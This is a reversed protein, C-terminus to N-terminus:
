GANQTKEQLLLRAARAFVTPLGVACQPRNVWDGGLAQRRAAAEEAGLPLHFVELQLRFHTFVHTISGLRELRDRSAQMAEALASAHGDAHETWTTSPFGPMGGLLGKRPRTVRLVGSSSTVIAAAGFRQPKGPKLPKQPFAEPTGLAFAKCACQVPCASCSPSRPTCITAGLDMLAQAFEGSRSRNQGPQPEPVLGQAYEVLTRRAATWDGELALLRAIVREVNGDVPCVPVGFAIAAIAAATYPGIGSLQLLAQPTDPFGGLAAVQRACTLLNRARAYYGLGAWAQMVEADDAAALADVTPWRAMFREFYPAAHPVTTQQLMIESLWVAYPDARTGASARSPPVRWPLTRAHVDYWDLLATTILHTM